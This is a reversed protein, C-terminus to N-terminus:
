VIFSILEYYIVYCHVGYNKKALTSKNSAKRYWEIAQKLNQPIGKGHEYLSGIRFLVTLFIPRCSFHVTGINKQALADGYNAATAYWYLAKQFDVEAGIGKEFLFGIFM